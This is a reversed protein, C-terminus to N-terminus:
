ETKQDIVSVRYGGFDNARIGFVTKRIKAGGANKAHVEELQALQQELEAPCFHAVLKGALPLKAKAVLQEDAERLSGRHWVLYLRQEESAPGSRQQPTPDALRSLYTIQDSGGILGLEIHFYDLQRAYSEVTNGPPFQVEWRQHRGVDSVADLSAHGSGPVIQATPAVSQIPLAALEKSLSSVANAVREAPDATTSAAEDAAPAALVFEPKPPPAPPEPRVAIAPSTSAAVQDPDPASAACGIATLGALFHGIVFSWHCASM